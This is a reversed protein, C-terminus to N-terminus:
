GQLTSEIVSLPTATELVRDTRFGESALIGTYEATTRERGTTMALMTLDTMKSFHPEDGPPVLCEIVILRAGVPAAAAITRIIRTCSADDWNHLIMSMLYIDATPVSEFFDGGVVEVRDEMGQDAVVTKAATVVEPRDFVIGHRDPEDHLLRALMSGDAGGIDVVTAGAPLRYERLMPARWGTSISAMATNQLAILEPQDAIWDFFHKGYLHTTTPENTRLTHLLEGFPAYQTEMLYRAAAHVSGPVNSALTTGFSTVAVTHDASTRFVGLPALTRVLRRLADPHAGTATALEDVTRPGGLLETAVDLRAAVYLAQAIQFGRLMQVMRLSDEPEPVESM